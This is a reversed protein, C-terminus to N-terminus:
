SPHCFNSHGLWTDDLNFDLRDGYNIVNVTCQWHQSGSDVFLTTAGDILPGSTYYGSGSPPSGTDASHNPWSNFSAVGYGTSSRNNVAVQGFWSLNVTTDPANNGNPCSPPANAGSHCIFGNIMGINPDGKQPTSILGVNAGYWGGNANQNFGSVVVRLGGYVMRGCCPQLDYGGAFTPSSPNCPVNAPDSYPYIEFAVGSTKNGWNHTVGNNSNDVFMGFPFDNSSPSCYHLVKYYSIPPGSCAQAFPESSNHCPLYDSGGNLNPQNMWMDVGIHGQTTGTLAGNQVGSIPANAFAGSRIQPYDLSTVGAALAPSGYVLVCLVLGIALRAFM